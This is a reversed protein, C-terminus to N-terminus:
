AVGRMVGVVAIPRDMRTENNSYTLSTVPVEEQTGQFPRPRLSTSIVLLHQLPPFEWPKGPHILYEDDM